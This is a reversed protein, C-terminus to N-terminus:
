LIEQKRSKWDGLDEELEQLQHRRQELSSCLQHLESKAEAKKLELEKLSSSEQQRRSLLEDYQLFEFVILIM